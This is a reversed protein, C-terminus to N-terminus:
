AANQRLWRKLEEAAQFDLLDDSLKTLKPIPLKTITKKQALTIRGLKRELQRLITETLGQQLGMQIGQERGEQRWEEVFPAMIKEGRKTFSQEISDLVASKTLTANAEAAYKLMVRIYQVASQNAVKGFAQWVNLLHPAEHLQHINKMMLLTARVVAQGRIDTEDLASLDCLYYSFNPIYSQWERRADETLERQDLLASFSAPYNWRTEGHYFLIPFILPLSKAKNAKLREWFQLLYSLIQLAVWKDPNSKHEFLLCVFATEESGRLRVRYILDAFNEELKEDVFSEKQVELSDLDLSSVIAPPLYNRVFDAALDPQGFIEKFFKDHPNTLNGAEPKPSKRPQKAM